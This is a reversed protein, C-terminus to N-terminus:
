ITATRIEKVGTGVRVLHLLNNDYDALCLEFSPIGGDRAHTTVAVPINNVTTLTDGHRHGSLFFRIKGTAGTFDYVKGAMTYTTRQNYADALLTLQEAFPIMGAEDASENYFIHMAFAMNEAPNSLMEEVVWDIQEQEYADFTTDWDIGTDFVFFRTNAGDFSYYNHKEGRLWLNRITDNTLQGTGNESEATLKGQYNTDHNGVVPYYRDFISRMQKDIFGLKFCAEAQTDSNGLWDGGCLAFSVPAAEYTAKLYAKYTEFEGQWGTGECLHPDTFFLFSECKGTNNFLAAFDAVGQPTNTVMNQSELYNVFEQSRKTNWEEMLTGCVPSCYGTGIALVDGEFMNARYRLHWKNDNINYVLANWAPIHITARTTSEVTIHDAIDAITADDWGVTKYTARWCLTPRGIFYADLCENTTDPTFRIGIPDSTNGLYFFAGRVIYSEHKNALTKRYKWEDVLCGRYPNGYANQVLPIDYTDCVAHNRLYLMKDKTNFVLSHYTPINIKKGYTSGNDEMHGAINVGATDWEITTTGYMGRYTWRGQTNVSVSGDTNVILDVCTNGGLYVFGQYINSVQKAQAQIAAYLSANTKGLGDLRADIVETPASGDGPHSVINDIRKDLDTEVSSIEKSLKEDINDIEQALKGAYKDIQADFAGGDIHGQVANEVKGPLEIEMQNVLEVCENVKGATRGALELATLAEEDYITAPNTISYHEIKELM